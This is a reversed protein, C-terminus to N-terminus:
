PAPPRGLETMIRRATDRFPRFQYGLEKQAKSVDYFYVRSASRATARTVVRGLPLVRSTSESLTALAIALAPRVVFRPGRVGAAHALTDLAEKWRLNEGGLVYREGCRGREMARVHGDAVDEADVFNTGGAPSVPLRRKRVQDVILRTNEGPRGTGFVLTPNVMVADLGEAIGRQVELEALHKSRAYHTNVRSASWEHTEDIFSGPQEPRGLAAISSTHVLREVGSKLAANVVTRTGLVNVQYLHKWERSSGFGIYAAVHFVGRVGAMAEDLLGADAIDGEFTEIQGRVPELLGGTSHSRRLVRVEHGAEVLQRALASGIMGTAGTVLLNM